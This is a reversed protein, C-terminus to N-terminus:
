HPCEQNALLYPRPEITIVKKLRAAIRAAIASSAAQTGVRRVVVGGMAGAGVANKSGTLQDARGPQRASSASAAHGAMMADHLAMRKLGSHCGNQPATTAELGM